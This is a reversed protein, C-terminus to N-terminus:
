IFFPTKFGTFLRYANLLMGLAVFVLWGIWFVKRADFKELINPLAWFCVGYWALVLGYSFGADKLFVEQNTAQLILRVAWAGGVVGVLFRIGRWFPHGDTLKEMIKEVCKEAIQLLRDTM